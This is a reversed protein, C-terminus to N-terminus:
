YELKKIPFYIKKITEEVTKIYDITQYDIYRVHIKGLLKIGNKSLSFDSDTLVAIKKFKKTINRKIFFRIRQSINEKSFKYDYLDAGWIVWTAKRIM